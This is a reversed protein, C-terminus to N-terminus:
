LTGQSRRVAVTKGGGAARYLLSYLTVHTTGIEATVTLLFYQSDVSLTPSNVPLTVLSKLQALSTFGNTGRLDVIQQAQAQSLNPALTMLLVAPTTNVNLPTAGSGGVGPLAPPLACVYPLLAAYAQPTVGNVMQLESVSTMPANSPRYPPTLRSYYDVEAGGPQTPTDDADIWDVVADAIGADLNLATLLRQFQQVYVPQAQGAQNVLNNLNFRGQLDEIHGLIQGGEVPLPPLQAAWNQGLTTANANNQHDRYLIQEAWDEAGLAYAYAQDGQIISASRHEDLTLNWTIAAALSAALAVAVLVTLLAIGRQRPTRHSM